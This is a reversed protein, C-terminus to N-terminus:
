LQREAYKTYNSSGANATKDDLNKNSKKELYGLEAEATAILKDIAKMFNDEKYDDFIYDHIPCFTLTFRNVDM